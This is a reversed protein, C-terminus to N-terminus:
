DGLVAMGRSLRERRTKKAGVKKKRGASSSGATSQALWWLVVNAIMLVGVVGVVSATVIRATAGGDDSDQPHPLCPPLLPRPLPSPLARSTADCRTETVPRGEREGGAAWVRGM